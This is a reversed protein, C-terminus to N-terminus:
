NIKEFPCDVLKAGLQKLEKVDRQDVVSNPWMPVFAYFVCQQDRNAKEPNIAILFSPDEDTAPLAAPFEARDHILRFVKQSGRSIIHRKKIMYYPGNKEKMFFRCGPAGPTSPVDTYGNEKLLKFLPARDPIEQQLPVRAFLIITTNCRPALRMASLFLQPLDQATTPYLVYVM